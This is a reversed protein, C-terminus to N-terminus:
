DDQPWPPFQYEPLYHQFTAEYAQQRSEIRDFRYRNEVRMERLENIIDAMTPPAPLAPFQQPAMPVAEEDQSTTGCEVWCGEVLDYHMKQITNETFYDDKSLNHVDVENEM